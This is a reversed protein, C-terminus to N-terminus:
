RKVATNRIAPLLWLPRAMANDDFLGAAADLGGSHSTEVIIRDGRSVPGLDFIDIDDMKLGAKDLVKPTATLPGTFQNNEVWYGTSGDMYLGGVFADGVDPIQQDTFQQEVIGQIHGKIKDFQSLVRVAGNAGGRGSDGFQDIIFFKATHRPMVMFLAAYPPIPIDFSPLQSLLQVLTLRNVQQIHTFWM